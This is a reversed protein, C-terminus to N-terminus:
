SDKDNLQEDVTQMLQGLRVKEGATLRQMPCGLWVSRIAAIALEERIQQHQQRKAPQREGRM